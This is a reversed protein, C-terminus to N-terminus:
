SDRETQWEQRCRLLRRKFMGHERADSNMAQEPGAVFQLRYLPSAELCAVALMHPGSFHGLGKVLECVTLYRIKVLEGFDQPWTMSRYRLPLSRARYEEVASESVPSTRMCCAHSGVAPM